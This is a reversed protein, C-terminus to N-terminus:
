RVPLTQKNVRGLADRLSLTVPDSGQTVLNVAFSGSAKARCFRWAGTGIRLRCVARSDSVTGKVRVLTHAGLTLSAIRLNSVTLKRLLAARLPKAKRAPGVNGALDFAVVTYTVTSGSGPKPARDVFSRSTRTAILKGARRIRYGAIRGNDTAAPWTLAVTGAKTLRASLKLPAGPRTTDPIAVSVVAAPGVNGAGDVAAVSYGVTTGPVLGTDTFDTTEPSGVQSGDRTVVYHDITIDDSAAGWNLAASTGTVVASLGTLASPPITDQPMVVQLTAGSADQGLDQIQIGRLPDSFVQGVDFAADSWASTAAGTTPHMDILATDAFNLNALDGVAEPSETRIYVGALAPPQSDFYGIPQRYEVYYSGGGAKPIRLVEVSGSLTEMPAVRYTGSVGAVKVASAPLLHLALKHEMSMQRVAKFGNGSDSRGMADFPDEYELGEASCADGMPAPSGANTCQIGGAHALGLNHGLEHALVRVSFDGNVWVHKGGIEAVGVFGCAMVTPFVFVIHQYAADSVGAAMEAKTAWRALDTPQCQSSQDPINMAAFAQGSFGIQGYTQELYYSNLSDPRTGDFVLSAAASTTAADGTLAATTPGGQSFGFTIVATSHMVPAAAADAALPSPAFQKVATLSDSVVLAGSQMSGELRVRSGPDVWVDGPARVPLESLGNVLMWQQTSTGNARDAHLVVLRGSRQVLEPGTGPNASVFSPLALLALTTVGGALLLRKRLTMM